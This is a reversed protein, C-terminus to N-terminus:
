LIHQYTKPLGARHISGGFKEAPLWKELRERLRFLADLDIGTDIGLSELLFVCDETAFNGTAGPAFPCGGLGGLSADFRRIGVDTASLVNAAGMGRTDHFHALLAVGPFRNGLTSFIRHVQAPTAYGVTDAILLEDAGMEIAQDALSYVIDESVEGQITCGFVTAIGFSLQVTDCLGRRNRERSIEGFAEMAQAQSRRVNALSHAESASVVYNIKQLGADFARMAGKLNVALASALPRKLSLAFRTVDDADAFQPFSSPPVFSTIEIEAIGAKAAGEIWAHKRETSLVDVVLQLGDRPGVERVMATDSSMMQAKKPM